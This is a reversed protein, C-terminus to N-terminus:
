PFFSVKSFQVSQGYKATPSKWVYQWQNVRNNYLVLLYYGNADNITNTFSMAMTTTAAPLAPLNKVSMACQSKGTNVIGNTNPVYAYQQSILFYKGGVIINANFPWLKTIPDQIVVNNANATNFLKTPDQGFLTNCLDANENNNGTQTFAPPGGGNGKKFTDAFHLDDNNYWSEGTGIYGTGPDSVTEFIEHTWVNLLRDAIIDGNPTVDPTTPNLSGGGAYYNTCMGEGKEGKFLATPTFSYLFSVTTPTLTWRFTQEDYAAFDNTALDYYMSTHYGCFNDATIQINASPMLTFITNKLDLKALDFPLTGIMKANIYKKFTDRIWQKANPVVIVSTDDVSTDWGSGQFALPQAVKGDPNTTTQLVGWLDTAGINRAFNDILDMSSQKWSKGVYINTAIPNTLITNKQKNSIDMRRNISATTAANSTDVEGHYFSGVPFPKNIVPKTAFSVQCCFLAAIVTLILM